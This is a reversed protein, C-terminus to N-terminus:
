DYITDYAFAGGVVRTYEYQAKEAQKEALNFRDQLTKMMNARSFTKVDRDYYVDEFRSEDDMQQELWYLKMLALLVNIEKQTIDNDFAYVLEGEVTTQSYTLEISPYRFAAIARILLSDLYEEIQYDHLQAITNSKLTNLVQKYITSFPVM